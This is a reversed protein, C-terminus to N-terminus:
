LFSVVRIATEHIVSRARNGLETCLLVGPVWLRIECLFARPGVPPLSRLVPGLFAPGMPCPSFLRVEPSVSDESGRGLGNRALTWENANNGRRGSM